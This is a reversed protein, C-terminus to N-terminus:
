RIATTPLISRTGTSLAFGSALFASLILLRAAMVTSRPPIISSVHLDERRLMTVRVIRDDYVRLLAPFMRPSHIATEKSLDSLGTSEPSKCSVSESVTPDHFSIVSQNENNMPAITAESKNHSAQVTYFTTTNNKSKKPVPNSRTNLVNPNNKRKKYSSSLEKQTPM